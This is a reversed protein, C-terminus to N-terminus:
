NRADKFTPSLARCSFWYIRCSIESKLGKLAKKAAALMDHYVCVAAVSIELSEVALSKKLNPNLPQKAKSCLRRVRAETDDGSLTTLDILTIAKLLWAAQQQKKISRRVGYNACRREIASRNISINAIKGKRFEIGLNRKINFEDNPSNEVDMVPYSIVKKDKETFKNNVVSDKTNLKNTKM